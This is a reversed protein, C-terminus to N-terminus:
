GRRRTSRRRQHRRREDDACERISRLNEEYAGGIRGAARNAGSDADTIRTLVQGEETTYICSEDLARDWVSKDGAAVADM